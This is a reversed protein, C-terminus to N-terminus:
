EPNQRAKQREKLARQLTKVSVELGRSLRIEERAAKWSPHNGNLYIADYAEVAAERKSPRGTRVVNKPEPGLFALYADGNINQARWKRAAQDSLCMSWGLFNQAVSKAFATDVVGAVWPPPETPITFRHREFWTPLRHYSCNDRLFALKAQDRPIPFAQAWLEAKGRKHPWPAFEKSGMRTLWDRGAETEVLEEFAITSEFVSAREFVDSSGDAVSTPLEVVQGSSACLSVAHNGITQIFTQELLDNPSGFEHPAAFYNLGVFEDTPYKESALVYIKDQRRMVFESWLVALAQYGEPAFM